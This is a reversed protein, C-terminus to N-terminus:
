NIRIFWIHSYEYPVVIEVSLEDHLPKYYTLKKFRM